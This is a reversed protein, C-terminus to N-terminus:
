RATPYRATDTQYRRTILRTDAPYPSVPVEEAESQFWKRSRPLTTSLSRMDPPRHSARDTAYVALPCNPIPPPIPPTPHYRSRRPRARSGSRWRWRGSRVGGGTSVRTLVPGRGGYVGWIARGLGGKAGDFCTRSQPGVGPCLEKTGRSSFADTTNNLLPSSAKYRLFIPLRHQPFPLIIPCIAYSPMCAVRILMARPMPHYPRTAYSSLPSQTPPQYPISRPEWACSTAFASFQGRRRERTTAHVNACTIRLLM